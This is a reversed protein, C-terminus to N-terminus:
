SIPLMAEPTYTTKYVISNRQRLKEDTEFVENSFSQLVRLEDQSYANVQLQRLITSAVNSYGLMDRFLGPEDSVYLELHRIIM